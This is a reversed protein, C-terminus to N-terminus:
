AKANINATIDRITQSFDKSKEINKEVYKISNIITSHDRGEFVDGIDNLSLNTLSRILYVAMHRATVTNKTRSQGKLDEKTLSFYKATEEIILDFTIAESKDKYMDKLVKEVFPVTITDGMLDRCAMIKKVSGEIQRVNATMKEAIYQCVDEPLVIGLQASKKKIIAMRMEYSPPNVEVILGSEFRTKLRDTLQNIENPPRDSTFVIQRNSEYLANFTYFFEEQTSMKGAIFQIDDMLFLNAQRYKDRFEATKGSQIAAILENTFEEGKVYVINWDPHNARVTHRIACLLHTKGLGSNGYIFLPNYATTQEEAVAIAAAHAFRNSSGVVFNDFTYNDGDLLGMNKNATKKVAYSNMDEDSLLQVDFDCAFIEKLANKVTDLFREKIIGRKFDSPVHLVLSNDKIEVARCDDFWTNIAVSTLDNQLIELVRSWVDAVSNM